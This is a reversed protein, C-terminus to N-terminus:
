SRVAQRALARGLLASAQGAVLNFSPRGHRCSALLCLAVLEVAEAATTRARYAYRIALAAAKMTNLM